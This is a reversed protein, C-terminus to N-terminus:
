THCQMHRDRALQSARQHPRNHLLCPLDAFAHLLKHRERQLRHIVNRLQHTPSRLCRCLTRLQAHLLHQRLELNSSVSRRTPHVVPHSVYIARQSRERRHCVCQLPHQTCSVVQVGNQLLTPLRHPGPIQARQVNRQGLLPRRHHVGHTTSHICEFSDENVVHSQRCSRRRHGHQLVHLTRRQEHISGEPMKHSHLQGLHLWTQRALTAARRKGCRQHM